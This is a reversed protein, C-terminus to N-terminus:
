AVRMPVVTLCSRNSWSRYRAWPTARVSNTAAAERGFLLAHRFRAKRISRPQRAAGGGLVWAGARVHGDPRALQQWGHGVETGSLDVEVLSCRALRNVIM